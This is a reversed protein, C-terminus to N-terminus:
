LLLVYLPPPLTPVPHVSRVENSGTQTARVESSEIAELLSDNKSLSKSINEQIKGLLDSLQKSNYLAPDPEIRGSPGKNVTTLRALNKSAMATPEAAILKRSQAVNGYYRRIQYDLEVFVGM